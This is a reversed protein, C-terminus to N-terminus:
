IMGEIIEITNKDYKGKFYKALVNEFLKKVDEDSAIAFLTMCSHLKLDDPSGFILRANDSDLEHLLKTIENLRKGLVPHKLYAKAEEMSKIAYFKSTESLGLGAIQPFIYWMWHSTKQGARLESLAVAYIEEQAEIYRTLDFKSNNM